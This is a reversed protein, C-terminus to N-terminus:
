RELEGLRVVFHDVRQQQHEVREEALTLDLAGGLEGLAERLTRELIRLVGKQHAAREVLYAIELM